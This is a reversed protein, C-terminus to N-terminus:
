GVVVVVVVKGQALWEGGGPVCRWAAGCITEAVQETSETPTNHLHRPPPRRAPPPRPNTLASRRTDISWAAGLDKECRQKVPTNNKGERSGPEEATSRWVAFASRPSPRGAGSSGTTILAKHSYPTDRGREENREESATRLKDAPSSHTFPGDLPAKGSHM